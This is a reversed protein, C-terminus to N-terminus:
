DGAQSGDFFEEKNAIQPGGCPSIPTVGCTLNLAVDLSESEEVIGLAEVPGIGVSV